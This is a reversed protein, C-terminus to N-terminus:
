ATLAALEANAAAVADADGSAVADAVKKEAAEIALRKAEAAKKEAATPNGFKAPAAPTVPVLEKRNITGEFQREIEAEQGPAISVNGVHHLRTSVNKVRM